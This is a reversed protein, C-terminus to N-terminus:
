ATDRLWVRLPGLAQFGLNKMAQLEPGSEYGVVPLGPAFAMAAALCASNADGFLNSIGVVGAAHSAVCGAVIREAVSGAIFAHDSEGLLAPRFLDLAPADGRWAAEWDALSDADRIIRWTIRDDARPVPDPDRWIWTADFLPAFGLPALDLARFSDKVAFAGRQTAIAEPVTEARTFTVANPYFPPAEGPNIWLDAEFRGRGGWCRTVADCWAANNHAALAISKM